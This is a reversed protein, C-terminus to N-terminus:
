FIKQKGLSAGTSVTEFKMSLAELARKVEDKTMVGTAEFQEAWYGDYVFPKGAWYCVTLVSCSVGGPIARIRAIESKSVEAAARVEQRFQPSFMVLYPEIQQSALLRVALVGIIATQAIGKVYRQGLGGFALAVAIASAATIEFFANYMVGAGSTQFLASALSLGILLATLKAGAARREPWAWLGWVILAPAVWQLKNILGFMHKLSLERPVLMERIFDPGYAAHCLILGALCLGGGLVAMRLAEKRNHLALWILAALPFVPMSHKIFGALVMLVFGPATSREERLRGLFVAFGYVMVALGLLGPDNVGVYRTFFHSLTALLWFGGFASLARSGGLNRICLAAALSVGGASFLALLRGAIVTDGTFHAAFATMYFSLPPYNNVILEGPGPYLKTGNRVADIFWANWAENRNIELFFGLRWVPWVLFIAALAAFLAAGAGAAQITRAARISPLPQSVPRDLLAM